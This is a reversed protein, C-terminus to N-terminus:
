AKVYKEFNNLSVFEKGYDTLKYKLMKKNNDDIIKILINDKLLKNIYVTKLNSTNTEKIGHKNVFHMELKTAMDIAFFEENKKLFSFINKYNLSKSVVYSKRLKGENLDISKWIRKREIGEPFASDIDKVMSRTASNAGCIVFQNSNKFSSVITFYENYRKNLLDRLLYVEDKSFSNTAFSCKLVNNGNSKIFGDDCFWTAIIEANLQLNNPIVKIKGKYWDNHYNNLISLSRTSFNCKKYTKNTRIDFYSSKVIGSKTLCNNFIKAQWRLYDYDKESRTISFSANNYRCNIHGDGLMSGIIINKQQDTLSLPNNCIYYNPDGFL